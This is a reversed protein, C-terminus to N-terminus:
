KFLCITELSATQSIAKRTGPFASAGKGRPLHFSEQLSMSMIQTGNTIQIGIALDGSGETCPVLCTKTRCLLTLSLPGLKSPHKKICIKTVSGM